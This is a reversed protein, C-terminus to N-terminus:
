LTGADGAVDPFVHRSAGWANPPNCQSAAPPMLQLHIKNGCLVEVHMTPLEVLPVSSVRCTLWIAHHLPPSKKKLAPQNGSSATRM